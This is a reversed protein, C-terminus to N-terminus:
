RCKRGRRGGSARGSRSEALAQHAGPAPDVNGGCLPIAVRTGRWRGPDSLMAALGVAGAPEVILGLHEGALAMAARIADDDVLVVDHVVERVCAVAYAVPVRVAVGDAITAIAEGSVIDGTRVALAMAPAGTAAVATVRAAPLAHRIWTGVGSALAGNGLPTLMHDFAQGSETLELALTGAGEAISIEAGDEVYVGGGAAAFGRAAGKAADFDDGALRVDAGFRAMAELKVRVAGTAAFVVCSMGARRAAYALGQGFNGASACVLTEGATRGAVFACAGRGKFSRIPNATEDKFVVEAGLQRDLAASTRVPTALFVPDIVDLAARVGAATPLIM